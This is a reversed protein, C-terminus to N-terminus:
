DFCWLLFQNRWCVLSVVAVEGSGDLLGTTLNKTTLKIAKVFFTVGFSFCWLLCGLFLWRFMLVSQHILWGQYWYRFNIFCRNLFILFEAVANFSHKIWISIRIIQTTISSIKEIFFQQILLMIFIFELLITQVTCNSETKRM